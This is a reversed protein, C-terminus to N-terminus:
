RVLMDALSHLQIVEILLDKRTIMGVVRAARPVVLIHRLGLQRFLNYVQIMITMMMMMAMM